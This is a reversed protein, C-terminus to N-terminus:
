PEAGMCFGGAGLLVGVTNHLVDDIEGQGVGLGFQALEISLSFLSFIVATCVLKGCSLRRRSLLGACLLGAPFFLLVNMFSSRLIEPNGGALLERYSHLPMMRFVKEVGAERGLVTTWLVVAAWLLLMLVSGVSWWRKQACRRHLGHYCLTGAVCCVFLERESLCYVELVLQQLLDTLSIM